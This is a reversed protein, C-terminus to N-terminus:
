SAAGKPELAHEALWDYPVIRLAAQNTAHLDVPPAVGALAAEYWRSACLCWRDGAKLGAFRYQPMATMLDNGRAASFELFEQTVKVCVTHSGADHIGTSCCGDRFYGTLPDFSCARLPGGLVNLTPNVQTVSDRDSQTM